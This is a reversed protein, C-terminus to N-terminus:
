FKLSLALQPQNPKLLKLKDFKIRLVEIIDVHEMLLEGIVKTLEHLSYAYRTQFKIFTLLLYYIMAAWIQTMVANESAGLFTKIKLNQKIWKFFLEIQWRHKYLEAITSAALKFNNTIFVLEVNRKKDYFTIRRLTEPYARQQRYGTFRIIQDSLIGKNKPVEQQGAVEYGLNTKARTIFFVRNLQLSHLWKFDYYGRDVTIISDPPLVPFNYSEDNVVRVDNCRATTLTIFSPLCGNHDLLTHIKMAGKRKQYDAWPFVTLCLKVLTSDMSYLPNKFRFKHGPALSQCKGLVDYFVAKYIDSSRKNNADALTSRSVSELGLHYWKRQQSRLSVAIDRLSKLGRAQSYLLVTLQQWCSFCRTRKDGSYKEVSNKFGPRSILQMVQGFVTNRTM